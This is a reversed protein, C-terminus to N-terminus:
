APGIVLYEKNRDFIGFLNICIDVVCEVHIYLFTEKEWFFLMENYYELIPNFIVGIGM